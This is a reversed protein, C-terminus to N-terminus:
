RVSDFGIDGSTPGARDYMGLLGHREKVGGAAVICRSRALGREVYAM